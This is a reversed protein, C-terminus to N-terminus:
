PRWQDPDSSSPPAPVSSRYPIPSNQVWSHSLAARANIQLDLNWKGDGWAMFYVAAPMNQQIQQVAHNLDYGPEQINWDSNQLGFETLAFPKGLTLMEDYGYAKGGRYGYVDLGVIDVYQSGPYFATHSGSRAEPAYVWLLNHLGKTYTLYNFTQIWLKIYGGPGGASWWFWDGNMEWFPRFLVVVGASQLGQLGAAVIDLQRMYSNYSDTGPTTIDAFNTISPDNGPGETQPNPFFPDIQVLVGQQWYNIMGPNVTSINAKMRSPYNTYEYYDAGVLGVWQATVDHIRQIDTIGVRGWCCWQGSILRHDTKSSLGILYNLVARTTSSANPDATTEASAVTLSFGALLLGFGM